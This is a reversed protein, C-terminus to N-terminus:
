ILQHLLKRIEDAGAALESGVRGERTVWVATPTVQARYLEAVEREQQLFTDALSNRAVNVFNDKISGTSIVAVTAQESHARQWQAVEELIIICPGCKPSVFILMLPKGRNLLQDLSTRGGAYGFLDFEPASSNLPLGRVVPTAAPKTAADDLGLKALWRDIWLLSNQNRSKLWALVVATVILLALVLEIVIAQTRGAGLEQAFWWPGAGVEGPGRWVIFAALGAFVFNRVLTRWGLPRSYLQGFCHCDTAQGRYLNVSIAVMFLLLLALATLASFWASVPLVLGAAVGIECLPLLFSLPRAIGSPAGFNTVAERTGRQDLAKAVGAVGFVAGLALRVLILTLSM